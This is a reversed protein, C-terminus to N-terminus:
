GAPSRPAREGTTSRPRPSTSASPTLAELARQLAPVDGAPVITIGAAPAIGCADSAIVPIGAAIARLLRRPQHEVWAPLVIVAAGDMWDGESVSVEVGDWFNGSELVPGGLRLPLRLARAAERLEYAGKRGLTSAPFVVHSGPKSGPSRPMQWPVLRAREGGLRAVAAHPTIWTRAAELAQRECEVLWAPARFDGLTPSEPHLAAARDLRSEMEHLPLRTMLVDFTRGGLWGDRWLFPLLNQSVSVHTSLAPLRRAFARAMAEDMALLARQRAAGQAALRRSAISRRAVTWPAQRVSAFGPSSWRYPGLRLRRSDLPMILHDAPRRNACMWADLEPSFADVLWAAGHSTPLAVAAAHRFCEVMGCTECSEAPPRIAVPAPAAGAPVPTRMEAHLRVVLEDASLHVALQIPSNARFRLDVYNWFVTADRGAFQAGPVQRSHAHREVIELGAQLAADHLANSMQCLGGGVNPIVCGERLERGNVFGRRRTARGVNAWFSFIEGAPVVLGDLARAALRLNQVKGAQLAWEAPSTDPYLRSRSEAVIPRAADFAFTGLRRPRRGAPDSLARRMRLLAAKLAFVWAEARTPLGDTRPAREM